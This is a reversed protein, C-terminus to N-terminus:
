GSTRLGDITSYVYAIFHGSGGGDVSTTTAILCSTADTPLIASKASADQYLPLLTLDDGAGPDRPDLVCFPMDKLNATQFPFDDTYRVTFKNQGGSKDYPWTIREVMPQEPLTHDGVWLSVFLKGGVTGSSFVFTNVKCHALKVQYTGAVGFPQACAVAPVNGFDQSTIAQTSSTPTVTYGKSLEGPGCVSLGSPSPESQAWAGAPPAECITYTDTTALGLSFSYSGDAASTTTKALTTGDYLNVTWGQLGTDGPDLVGNALQSNDQYVTGSISGAPAFCFTIQSVSYLLTPTLNTSSVTSQAPGHLNGDSSVGGLNPNSPVGPFSVGTYNFRATETGGKVGVDSVVAGTSTFSVYKDNAYAPQGVASAPNMDITFTVKTGDAATTKYTGDKPNAIRYSSSGASGFFACDNNQGGTAVDVAMIGASTRPPIAGGPVTAFAPLVLWLTVGVTAAIAGLGAANRKRRLFTM